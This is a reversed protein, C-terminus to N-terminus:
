SVLEEQHNLNYARAPVNRDLNDSGDDGHQGVEEAMGVFSALESLVNM